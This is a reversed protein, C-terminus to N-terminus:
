KTVGNERNCPAADFGFIVELHRPHLLMARGLRYFQCRERAKARLRRPSIVVDQARLEECWQEPTMCEKLFNYTM